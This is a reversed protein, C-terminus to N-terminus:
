ARRPVLVVPCHAGTLVRRAVGGAHVEAGPGYARSGLVLLGARKSARLLTDTPDGVYIDADVDLRPARARAAATLAPRLMAAGGPSRAWRRRRLPVDQAPEPDAAGVRVLAEEPALWRALEAAEAEDPSGSLVMVIRLPAAAAGALQAALDLAAAGEPSPLVAAAIAILPRASWGRPAIAVPCPAGDLLRETTNGLGVRGHEAHAPSGAVVLAPREDALARHLGAAPSPAVLDSVVAGGRRLAALDPEAGRAPELRSLREAASGGPRVILVHARAGLLGALVRGLEVPARDGSDPDYACAVTPEM